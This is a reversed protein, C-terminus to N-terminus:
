LLSCFLLGMVRCLSSPWVSHTMQCMIPQICGVWLPLDKAAWHGIVTSHSRIADSLASLLPSQRNRLHYVHLLSSTHQPEDSQLDKLFWVYGNCMALHICIRVLDLSIFFGCVYGM